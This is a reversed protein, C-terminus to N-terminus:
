LHAPSPLSASSPPSLCAIIGPQQLAPAPLVNYLNLICCCCFFSRFELLFQTHHFHVTAEGVPAPLARHCAGARRLSPLAWGGGVGHSLEASVPERGSWTSVLSTLPRSLGRRGDGCVAVGSSSLLLRQAAM